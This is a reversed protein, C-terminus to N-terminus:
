TECTGTMVIGVRPMTRAGAQLGHFSPSLDVANCPPGVHTARLSDDKGERPSWPAPLAEVQGHRESPQALGDSDALERGRPRM